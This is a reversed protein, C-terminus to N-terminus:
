KNAWFPSWLASVSPQSFSLFAHLVHWRALHHSPRKRLSLSLLRGHLRIMMRQITLAGSLWVLLLRSCTTTEPPQITSSWKAQAQKRLRPILRFWNSSSSFATGRQSGNSFRLHIIEKCAGSKTWRSIPCLVVMKAYTPQTATACPWWWKTKSTRNINSSLNNNRITSNRAMSRKVMTTKKKATSKMISRLM